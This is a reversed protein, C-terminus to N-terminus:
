LDRRGERVADVASVGKPWTRAIRQALAEREKWLAEFREREEGTLPQPEGRNSHRGNQPTAVKDAEAPVIRAVVHGDRVIEVPEGDEQLRELIADTETKLMALTVHSM